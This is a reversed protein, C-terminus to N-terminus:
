SCIKQAQNQKAMALVGLMIKTVTKNVVNDAHIM